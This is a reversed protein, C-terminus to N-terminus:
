VRPQRKSAAGPQPTPRQGPEPAIVGPYKEIIAAEVRVMDAYKVERAAHSPTVYPDAEDFRIGWQFFLKLQSIFPRAGTKLVIFSGKRMSKLEDASMLPREIMQLSQSSNDKGKSVSGSLVTRSGMTKSIREASESGPAFGGAVTLQTNDAIIAAGEKGYHKELQQYSQIIAVISIRRSRSASFMMEASQIPPLLSLYGKSTIAPNEGAECRVHYNGMMRREMTSYFKRLM